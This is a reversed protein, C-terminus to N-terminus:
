LKELLLHLRISNSAKLLIVCEKPIETFDFTDILREISDFHKAAKLERSYHGVTIIEEPNGIHEAIEKHYMVSSDGLELMDGLFAIHPLDRHLDRWFKLASKMSIPNANYCDSIIIRNDKHILEMRNKLMLSESLGKRIEEQTIGSLESCVIAMAANFALYPVKTNIRYEIDNLTILIGDEDISKIEIQYQNGANYGISIGEIGNAKFLQEDGNFIKATKTYKFLSTKEEFVGNLDKFFELHSPGIFTIIGIDPRCIEALQEIEGPHNSGLEFVVAQHETRLKFITKPLGILNNENANTKHTNYKQSLLLSVYEKTTTKGASGTIGIRKVNFVNLYKKALKGYAKLTDSVYICRPHNIRRSVVVWNTSDELVEEIYNHGDYREGKLAFFITNSKINRSDTSVYKFVFNEDNRFDVELLKKLMVLDIFVSLMGCNCRANHYNLAVEKDSFPHRIGGIEQYDEHGKGAILVVDDKQALKIATEIALKRDRVIWFNEDISTKGVIDDIIANPNEYRPNDNTIIVFDSNRLAKDLMEPRKGKDRDGGAGSITIIRGKVFERINELVKELADPTHAYDIFVTVGDSTTIRELRGPVFDLNSLDVDKCTVHPYALHVAILAM